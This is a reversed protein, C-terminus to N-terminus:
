LSVGAIVAALIGVAFGAAGLAIYTSLPSGAGEAEAEAAVRRAREAACEDGAVVRGDAYGWAWARTARATSLPETAALMFALRAHADAPYWVGDGRPEPVGQALVGADDAIAAPHTYDPVRLVPAACAFGAQLCVGALTRIM